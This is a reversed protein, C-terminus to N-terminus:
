GGDRILSVLFYGSPLKEYCTIQLKQTARHFWGLAVTTAMATFLDPPTDDRLVFSHGEGKDNDMYFSVLRSAPGGGSEEFNKVRGTFILLPPIEAFRGPFNPYVKHLVIDQLDHKM